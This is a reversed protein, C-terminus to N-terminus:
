KIANIDIPLIYKVKVPVGARKGPKWMKSTLKIVRIAEADIKSNLGKTITIDSITGDENVVFSLIVKGKLGSLKYEEPYVFNEKIFKKLANNGGTFVPMEEAILVIKDTSISPEEEKEVIVGATYNQASSKYVAGNATRMMGSNGGEGVALESVGVPLPLPQKVTVIKGDKSRVESDIAIFSTYNTLLNYKLGLQIIKKKGEETAGLNEYDDLMRIRDRAWLYKLSINSNDPKSASVEQELTIERDANIGKLIIKGNPNGKWKGIIMVPREAFVDPISVPEVDYADFGNFSVKLHTLVPSEIYKKFQAAKIRAEEENTAIFPEGNGAYAMGEIIFRNVSSGIGFAFFNARSLNNRILDIAEKEVDVYGDTAIVFTRAYNETGKLSLARKLATILETGGGGQQEDIFRFARKLNEPEAQVSEESFISSGGSFLIINFRDSSKLGSLLNKMLTKSIELPFGYMSGSVDMIFVYDRPTIQQSTTHAPPQIMALFYNEEKGKYLLLGSSIEKGALKYELIFDKNGEHGNVNKLSISATNENSYQINIEHSTSQISSVPMGGSIKAQLSFTYSPKEGLRNYPNEVWKDVATAASGNKNSYRPGVVTPYVFQYIGETPIILETYSLEVKILDGPLINGVNMQFVNPRQQELLSATKGERIANNYSERAQEREQIVANIEREGIKMRMGYVAARTSAPFIYIAELTTKGTNKYTQTVRVDAVIGSINIDTSTSQLPLQDIAPDESKVFFYPSLTKDVKKESQGQITSTTMCLGSVLLLIITQFATMKSKM